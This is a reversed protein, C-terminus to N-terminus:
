IRIMHRSHHLTLLYVPAWLGSHRLIVKGETAITAMAATRMATMCHHLLVRLDTHQYIMQSEPHWILAWLGTHRHLLFLICHTSQHQLLPSRLHFILILLRNHPHSTVMTTDMMSVATLIVTAPSNLSRTIIYRFTSISSQSEYVVAVFYWRCRRCRQCLLRRRQPRRYLLQRVTPKVIKTTIHRLM